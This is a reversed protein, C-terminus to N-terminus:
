ASPCLLRQAAAARAAVARSFLIQNGVRGTPGWGPAMEPGWHQGGFADVSLRHVGKRPLVSPWKRARMKPGGQGAGNPLLIRVGVCSCWRAHVANRYPLAFNRSGRPPPFVFTPVACPCFDSLVIRRLSVVVCAHVAREGHRTVTRTTGHGPGEAAVTQGGATKQEKREGQKKGAALDELETRARAGGGAAQLM